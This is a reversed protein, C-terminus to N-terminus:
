RVQVAPFRREPNAISEQAAILQIERTGSRVTAELVTFVAAATVELADRISGSKLWHAFFLAATMDGAGNVTLPLLPTEVAYARHEEVALMEIRDSAADARRLSTVLVVKPGLAMVLEIAAFASELDTVPLNALCELEFQNPTIMTAAPVASHRMFEPIGPRVFFGRGTDGMVPDCCYIANPNARKVRKFADLIVEGLSADGMYGSLVGNCEHLVGREEIGLIVEAVGDVPLVIGRWSGYGTHNSFHVTNVPWVEVGIRQLPFVAASNGVHGYAVSSQISLITLSMPQFYAFGGSKAEAAATPTRLDANPTQRREPEANPTQRTGPAPM